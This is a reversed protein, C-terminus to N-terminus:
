RTMAASTASKSQARARRLRDINLDDVLPFGGRKGRAMGLDHILCAVGPFGWLLGNPWSPSRGVLTDVARVAMEFAREYWGKEPEIRDMALIAYARGGFGCCLSGLPRPTKTHTLLLRTAKAAQRLYRRDAHLEFARVWLFTLGSLGNCWTCRLRGGDIAFLPSNAVDRTLRDIEDFFWSPLAEGTAASWGLLTHLIGARGHSYGLTGDRAWGNKARGALLLHDALQSAVALTKSDQTADFLALLGALYGATGMTFEAPGRRSELGRRLLQRRIVADGPRATRAGAALLQVLRVGDPGRLLSYRGVGSRENNARYHGPALTTRPIWSLLREIEAVTETRRGKASLRLLSFAVGAAGFPISAWPPPQRNALDDYSM